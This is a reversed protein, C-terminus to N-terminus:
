PGRPAAVERLDGLGDEGAVAGVLGPRMDAPDVAAERRVHDVDVYLHQEVARLDDVLHRDVDRRERAVEVGAGALLPQATRDAGAHQPDRWNTSRDGAPSRCSTRSGRRGLQSPGRGCFSCCAGLAEVGGRLAELGRDRRRGCEDQEAEVPQSPSCSRAAVSASVNAVGLEGVAASATASCAVLLASRRTARRRDRRWSADVMAGALTALVAVEGAGAQQARRDAGPVVTSFMPPQERRQEVSAAGPPESSARGRDRLLRRRPPPARATGGHGRSELKRLTPQSWAIKPISDPSRALSCALPTPGWLISIHSIANRTSRM